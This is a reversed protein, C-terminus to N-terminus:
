ALFFRNPAKIGPMNLGLVSAALPAIDLLSGGTQVKSKAFSPGGALYFVQYDDYDLPFGHNSIHGHPFADCCYGPKVAFGFPLKGRGCVYMEDSTLFRHFGSHRGTLEKVRAIQKPPLKGPHFFGSGGCCEFYCGGPLYNGKADLQLYKLQTLIENPDVPTGAALQAHDSFLLVDTDKPAARLVLGLNQDLAEFATELQRSDRGYEHCLSDYATFHIFTLDPKERRLLDAACAATFNDLAPQRIGDLLRRHRLYSRIQIRKSGYTLNEKLQNQGPLVLLEPINWRIEKAGGTVPWLVSAVTLGKEAAAQWLTKAKIQAAEFCWKPHKKPFPHTNNILGHKVPHVGTAVSTHVPYTNSLFISTVERAVAANKALRAFNPYEMLRPFERDGVADYSIILLKSM